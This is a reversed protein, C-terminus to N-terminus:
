GRNNLRAVASRIGDIIADMAPKKGEKRANTFFYTPLLYGRYAGTETYRPGTGLDLLHAKWGAPWKLGAAAYSQGGQKRAIHVKTAFSRATEGTRGVISSSAYNARGYAEFIKAAESLGERIAKNQQFRPLERVLYEVARRTQVDVEISAM